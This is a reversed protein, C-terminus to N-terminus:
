LILELPNRKTLNVDKFLVEYKIYQPRVVTHSGGEFSFSVSQFIM